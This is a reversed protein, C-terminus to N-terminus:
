KGANGRIAIIKEIDKAMARYDRALREFLERKQIDTALRAILDCDDAESLLKELRAKFDQM